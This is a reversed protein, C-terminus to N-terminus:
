DPKATSQRITILRFDIVPGWVRCARDQDLPPPPCCTLLSVRMILRQVAKSDESLIGRSRVRSESGKGVLTRGGLLDGQLCSVLPPRPPPIQIQFEM